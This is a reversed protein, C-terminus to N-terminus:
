TKIQVRSTSQDVKWEAYVSVDAPVAHSGSHLANSAPLQEYLCLDRNTVAGNVHMVRQRHLDAYAIALATLQFSPHM